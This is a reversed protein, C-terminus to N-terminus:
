INKYAAYFYLSCKIYVVFTVICQQQRLALSMLIHNTVTHKMYIQEFILQTQFTFRSMEIKWIICRVKMSELMKGIFVNM